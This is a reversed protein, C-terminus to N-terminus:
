PQAARHLPMKGTIVEALGFENPMEFIKHQGPRRLDADILLVKRGAMALTCAMNSCTTSKGDGSHPSSIMLVQMQQNRRFFELSTRIAKFSEAASSRPKSHCILGLEKMSLRVDSQSQGGRILHPILGLVNLDLIKRIEALNRVKSDLIDVLYAATCGMMLGAFISVGLILVKSTQYQSHMPPFLIQATVTVHAPDSVLKAQKLQNVITDRLEETRKIEKRMNEEALRDLEVQQSSKLVKDYETQLKTQIKTLTDINKELGQIIAEARAQNRSKAPALLAATFRDLRGKLDKYEKSEKGKAKELQQLDTTLLEQYERSTTNIQDSYTSEQAKLSIVDAKAQEILDAVRNNTNLLYKQGTGKFEDWLEEREEELATLESELRRISPENSDKILRRNGRIRRELLEIDKDLAIVDATKEFTIRLRKEETQPDISAENQEIGEDVQKQLNALMREATQRAYQTQAYKLTLKEFGEGQQMYNQDGGLAVSIDHNIQTDAGITTGITHIAKAITADSAGGAMLERAHEIQTNLQFIRSNAAQIGRDWESLRQVIISRGELDTIMQPHRQLFELHTNTQKLLDTELEDRAKTFLQVVDTSKKTFTNDLFRKYADIVANVVKVPKTPDDSDFKITLVQELRTITLGKHLEDFTISDLKGATIADELVALSKIISMHSVLFDGMRGTLPDGQLLNNIVGGSQNVLIQATASYRPKTKFVQFLGITLALLICLLVLRWGRRIANLVLLVDEMYHKPEGGNMTRNQPVQNQHRAIQKM